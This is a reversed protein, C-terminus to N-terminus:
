EKSFFLITLVIVSLGYEMKECLEDVNFFKILATFYALVVILKFLLKLANKVRRKTKQEM